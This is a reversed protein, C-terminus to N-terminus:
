QTSKAAELVDMIANLDELYAPRIEMRSTFLRIISRNCRNKPGICRDLIFIM